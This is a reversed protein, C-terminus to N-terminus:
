GLGRGLHPSPTRGRSHCLSGHRSACHSFGCQQSLWCMPGVTEDRRDRDNAAVIAGFPGSVFMVIFDMRVAVTAARAMVAAENDAVSAKARPPPPPPWPPCPMLPMFLMRLMLEEFLKRLKWPM